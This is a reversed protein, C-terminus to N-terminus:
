ARQEGAASSSPICYKELVRDLCQVAHKMLRFEQRCERDWSIRLEIALQDEESLENDLYCSLWYDWDKEKYNM